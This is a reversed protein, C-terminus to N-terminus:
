SKYPEQPWCIAGQDLTVATTSVFDSQDNSFPRITASFVYCAKLNNMTTAACKTGRCGGGGLCVKTKSILFSVEQKM